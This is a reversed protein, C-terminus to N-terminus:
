CRGLWFIQQRESWIGGYAPGSASEPDASMGEIVAAVEQTASCELPTRGQEDRLTDNIHPQALLVAAISDTAHGITHGKMRTFSPPCVQMREGVRLLLTYRLPNAMRILRHM